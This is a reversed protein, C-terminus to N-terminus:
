RESEVNKLSSFPDALSCSAAHDFHNFYLFHVKRLLSTVSVDVRNYRCESDIGHFAIFYVVGGVSGVRSSM